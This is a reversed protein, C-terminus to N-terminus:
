LYRRRVGRRAVRIRLRPGGEPEVLRDHSVRYSGQAETRADPSGNRRRDGAPRDFGARALMDANYFLFHLNALFPMAWIRGRHEFANLITPSIDQRAKAALGRDLPVVYGKEAFEAVWILDMLVVDYTAVPSTASTVIKQYEEDYRVFNVAVVIGTEKTFERTMEEFQEPQYGAQAMYIVNLRL